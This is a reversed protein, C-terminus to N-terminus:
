RKSTRYVAYALLLPISLTYIPFHLLPNMEYAKVLTKCSKTEEPVQKGIRIMRGREKDICVEEDRDAPRPREYRKPNDAVYLGMVPLPEEPEPCKRKRTAEETKSKLSNVYCERASKQDGFLRAAKGDDGEFQLLLQYTSIAAKVKNLTPRGIIVNYPLSTDVVLSDVIVNRGAKKEGMRTPLKVSGLPHVSQGGFGVLPQDIPTLDKEEYKLKRLCVLTIIDASSGSDILVRGVRLNAIKM